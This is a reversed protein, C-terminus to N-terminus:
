AVAIPLSPETPPEPRQAYAYRAAHEWTQAQAPGPVFTTAAACCIALVFRRM